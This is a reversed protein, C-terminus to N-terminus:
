SVQRQDEKDPKPRIQEADQYQETQEIVWDLWHEIDYEFLTTLEGNKFLELYGPKSLPLEARLYENCRYTVDDDFTVSLSYDSSSSCLAVMNKIDTYRKKLLYDRSPSQISLEGQGGGLSNILGMLQKLHNSLGITAEISPRIKTNPFLFTLKKIGRKEKKQRYNVYDWYNSKQLKSWIKITLGFKELERDLNEELLDRVIDTKRWAATDIEIAIQAKGKRNDIIIYCPPTSEYKKKEIVPISSETRQSEYVIVNKVNELQLLIINRDHAVVHCPFKEAGQGQKKERQIRVNSGKKGFVHDFNEYAHDM